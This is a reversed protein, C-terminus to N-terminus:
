GSGSNSLRRLLRAMLCLFTGGCVMLAESRPEPVVPASSELLTVPGCLAGVSLPGGSLSVNLDQQITRPALGLTLALGRNRLTLLAGNGGAEGFIQQSISASLQFNAQLISVAGSYNASSIDGPSFMLPAGSTESVSGDASELSADFPAPSDVTASVFVLGVGIPYSPLGYQVAYRGYNWSPICFALADDPGLWVTAASSVDIITTAGLTAASCAAGLPLAVWWAM